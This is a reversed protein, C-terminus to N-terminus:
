EGRAVDASRTESRVFGYGDDSRADRSCFIKAGAGNKSKAIVDDTISNWRRLELPLGKKCALIGPEFEGSM